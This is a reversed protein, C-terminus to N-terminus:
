MHKSDSPSYSVASCQDALMALLGGSTQDFCSLRVFTTIAVLAADKNRHGRQMGVPM